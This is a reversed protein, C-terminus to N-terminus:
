QSFRDILTVTFNDFSMGQGDEVYLGPMGQPPFGGTMQGIRIGNMFAVMTNGVVEIRFHATSPIFRSSRNQSCNRSQGGQITMLCTTGSGQWYNEAYFMALDADSQARAIIGFVSGGSPSFAAGPVVNLVDVDVAYNDWTKGTAIYTYGKGSGVLTYSGVRAAWNGSTSSWNSKKGANFDDVFVVPNNTAPPTTGGLTTPGTSGGSTPIGLQAQLDQIQKDKVNIKSQLENVQQQLRDVTGQTTGKASQLQRIQDQLQSILQDGQNKVSTLSQVQQQLSRNDAQATQLSGNLRSVQAQLDSVQGQLTHIDSAFLSRALNKVPPVALALGLMLLLIVGVVAFVALVPQVSSLSRDEM